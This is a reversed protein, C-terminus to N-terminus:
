NSARYFRVSTEAPITYPSTANAIESFAGGLTDTGQLKGTFTITSGNISIVPAGAVPYNVPTYAGDPSMLLSNALITWDLHGHKERVERTREDLQWAPSREILTLQRAM